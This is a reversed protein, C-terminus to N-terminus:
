PIYTSCGSAGCKVSITTNSRTSQGDEAMTPRPACGCGPYQMECIKEDAAFRAQQSKNYGIANQSGCCDTQHIAVFCDTASICSKDFSPFVPPSATCVIRDGGSGDVGGDSSACARETCLVQGSASCSCTNCGDMSPFSQGPAYTANGYRCTTGGGGGTDCGLALLACGAALIWLRRM